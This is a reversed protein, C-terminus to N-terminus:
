PSAKEPIRAPLKSVSQVRAESRPQTRFRRFHVALRRGNAQQFLWVENITGSTAARHITKPTGAMVRRVQMPTMGAVVTGNHVAQLLPNPPAIRAAGAPGWIGNRKEYGLKQLRTAVAESNPDEKDAEILLQAARAKDNLLTQTADALNLLGSPGERRWKPEKANVWQKLADAAKRPAKRKRFLDALEVAQARTATAITRLRHTLEKERLPETRDHFEPLRREIEAAVEFGNSGDSKLTGNIQRWAVEMYFLRHLTKRTAADASEYATQPSKAYSAALPQPITKLPVEAGPLDKKLATLFQTYGFPKQMSDAASWRTRYGLHRLEQVAGAPVLLQKAKAALRFVAKDDGRPLERREIAVARAYAGRGLATLKDDGYFKGRQVAWTGAQYWPASTKFPLKRKLAAFTEEDSDRASLSKVIMRFRKGYKVLTGSVVVNTTKKPLSELKTGRPPIFRVDCKYLRLGSDFRSILRGEVTVTVGIAALNSWRSKIAQFEAVSFVEVPKKKAGGPTTQSTGLSSSPFSVDDAFAASAAITVIGTMLLLRLMM